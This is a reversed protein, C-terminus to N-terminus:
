ELSHMRVTSRSGVSISLILAGPYTEIRSRYKRSLLRGSSNEPFLIPCHDRGVTVIDRWIILFFDPAHHPYRCKTESIGSTWRWSIRSLNPLTTSRPFLDILREALLRIDPKM